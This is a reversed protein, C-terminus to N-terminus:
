PRPRATQPLMTWCSANDLVLRESGSDVDALPSDLCALTRATSNYGLVIVAGSPRGTVAPLRPQGRDHWPATMTSMRVRHCVLTLSENGCGPWLAWARLRPM